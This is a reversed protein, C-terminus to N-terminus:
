VFSIKNGSSSKLLSLFSCDNQTWKVLICFWQTESTALNRWKTDWGLAGWGIDRHCFRVPAEWGRRSSPVSITHYAVPNQMPSGVGGGGAACNLYWQPFTEDFILKATTSQCFARPYTPFKLRLRESETTHHDSSLSLSSVISPDELEEWCMDVLLLPVRRQACPREFTGTM